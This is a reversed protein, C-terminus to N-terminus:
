KNARAETVDYKITIARVSALVVEELQVALEDQSIFREAARSVDVVKYKTSSRVMYRAQNKEYTEQIIPLEKITVDMVRVSRGIWPVWEPIAFYSAKGKKYDGNIASVNLDPSCVMNKGSPLIVLHAESPSVIRYMASAAILIVILVVIGIIIEIM